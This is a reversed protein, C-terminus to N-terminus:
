ESGETGREAAEAAAEQEIRARRQRFHDRLVLQCTFGVVQAVVLAVVLATLARTLVTQPSNGAGIGGLTAVAFALLAVQASIRGIM